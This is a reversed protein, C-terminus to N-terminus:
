GQGQRKMKLGYLYLDAVAYRLMGAESRPYEQLIGLDILDNVLLKAEDNNKGWIMGLRDLAIPSYENALKGLFDAFEPYANLIEAVRRESVSPLADILTHPHLIANYPNHNASRKENEIALQLLQLLDGPFHNGNSDRLRNRIWDFAYMKSDRGMREGWLLFLNNRLLSLDISDLRRLVKTIQVNESLMEKFTPSSTIAQRWTLRWLDAEEWRLSVSRSSIFSSHIDLNIWIDERILLKATISKWDPGMELWFDILGSLPHRGTYNQKFSKDLEDYFVWVKQQHQQLWNDITEAEDLAPDYIPKTTPSSGSRIIRSALWQVIDTHSVDKQTSLKILQPDLPLTQLEPLSSVIQLLMYNFWFQFWSSPAGGALEEYNGLDANTLLTPRLDPRGHGVIFHVNSLDADYEAIARAHEPNEVFLRFLLTKGTGKAGRVLWTRDQLFKTFNETRQFVNPIAERALEQTPVTSFKLESLVKQRMDASITAVPLKEPLSATITDAVPMYTETIGPPMSLSLNTLTTITPNYPVQYYLDDVTLSPPIVWNKSIWEATDALWTKQLSQDVAPIPTLLFRLDPIGQYSRQKSAANIVQQLGSFSQKTPSFCLIGLDTQDFLAIAGIETFGTRADILIIDPDLYEKVEKLLQRLPNVEQHYMSRISLDALRHIYNEDNVGAPILYLEGRTPIDIQRICEAIKPENANPMAYRPYIYDLVGYTTTDNQDAPFMFSLGPAELDFDIMAVRRKKNALITAVFALATSRGVGGKFSYFTVVFPRKSIDEDLSVPKIPDPAMLIESWLPAQIPSPTGEIEAERLTKLEYDSIPFMGLNFKLKELITDIIQEREIFEKKEFIDTFIRLYLWGLSTRQVYIQADQDQKQIEQTLLAKIQEPLTPQDIM